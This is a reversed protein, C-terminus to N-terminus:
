GTPEELSAWLAKLASVGSVAVEDAATLNGRVYSRGSEASVVRVERAEFGVTSRVFLYSGTSNRAVARSPVSFVAGGSDDCCDALLRASVFQGPKLSRGAQDVTARVLVTQTDADVAQGVLVVTAVPKEGAGDVIVRMGPVLAAIRAQPVQIELWLTSLDAARYIPAMTEVQGGTLAMGELIVGARPALVALTPLLRQNSALGRLQEDTLGGMRLMQRTENYRARAAQARAETEAQRRASILGEALLERDREVQASALRRESAAGLFDRQLSLFDPSHIEALVQGKSVSDGAAVTLGMVRGAQPAAVVFEAAPPIVVRATATLEHVQDVPEPRGLAVGLNEYQAADLPIEAAYPTGWVLVVGVAVRLPHGVNM